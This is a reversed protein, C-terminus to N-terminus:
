GQGGCALMSAHVSAFPSPLVAALRGISGVGADDLVLDSVVLVVLAAFVSSGDATWTRSLDSRAAIFGLGLDVTISAFTSAGADPRGASVDSGTMILAFVVIAAFNSSGADASNPSIFRAMRLFVSPFGTSVM